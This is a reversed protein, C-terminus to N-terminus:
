PPHDKVHLSFVGWSPSPEKITTELTVRPKRLPSSGEEVSLQMGRGAAGCADFEALLCAWGAWAPRGVPQAHPMRTLCQNLSSAAEAHLLTAKRYRSDLPKARSELYKM